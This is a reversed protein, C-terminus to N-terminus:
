PWRSPCSVTGAFAISAVNQEATSNTYLDKYQYTLTTGVSGIVNNIYGDSFLGAGCAIVPWIASWFPKQDLPPGNEEEARVIQDEEVPPNKRTLKDFM